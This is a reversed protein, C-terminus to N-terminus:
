RHAPTLPLRRTARASDSGLTATSTGDVHSTNGTTTTTWDVAISYHLAYARLKSAKIGLKALCGLPITQTATKAGVNMTSHIGACAIQKHKNTNHFLGNDRKKGDSLLELTYRGGGLLTTLGDANYRASYTTPTTTVDRTWTFPGAVHYTVTLSPTAGDRVVRYTVKTLDMARDAATSPVVTSKGPKFGRTTNVTDDLSGTRAVVDQRGDRVNVTIRDASSTAAVSRPRSAGPQAVSPVATAAITAVAAAVISMVQVPATSRRM